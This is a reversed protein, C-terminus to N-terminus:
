RMGFDYLRSDYMDDIAASCNEKNGCKLFILYKFAILRERTFLLNCIDANAYCNTDPLLNFLKAHDPRGKVVNGRWVFKAENNGSFIIFDKSTLNYNNESWIRPFGSDDAYGKGMDGYSTDFYAPNRFEAKILKDKDKEVTYVDHNFPLLYVEKEYLTDYNNQIEYNMYSPEKGSPVLKRMFEPIMDYHEYPAYYANVAYYAGRKAVGAPTHWGDNLYDYYGGKSLVIGSFGLKVGDKLIEAAGTNDNYAIYSLLETLRKNEAKDKFITVEKGGHKKWLEAANKVEDFEYLRDEAIHAVAKMLYALALEKDSAGNNKIHNDIIYDIMLRAKFLSLGTLRMAESAAEFRRMCESLEASIGGGTSVPPCYENYDIYGATERINYFYLIHKYADNLSSGTNLFYLANASPAFTNYFDPNGNKGAFRSRAYREYYKPNYKESVLHQFFRYDIDSAGITEKLDYDKPAIRESDASNKNGCAGTFAAAMIFIFLKKM